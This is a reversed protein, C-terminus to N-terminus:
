PSLRDDSTSDDGSTESSVNQGWLGPHKVVDLDGLVRCQCALRLGSEVHHPPVRLRLRERATTPSAAGEEGSVAVACTGCTGLGHCNLVSVAPHHPTMGADLLADRLRVGERCVAIRGQFRVEPM